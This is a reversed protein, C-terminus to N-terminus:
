CLRWKSAAVIPRPPADDDVPPAPAVLLTQKSPTSTTKMLGRGIAHNQSFVQALPPVQVVDARSSAESQVQASAASQARPRCCLHNCCCLHNQDLNFDLNFCYTDGGKRGITGSTSLCKIIEFCINELDFFCSFFQGSPSWRKGIVHSSQLPSTMPMPSSNSLTLSSPCNRRKPRHLVSKDWWLLPTDCSKERQCKIISCEESNLVMFCSQISPPTKPVVYSMSISRERPSSRRNQPSVRTMPLKAPRCRVKVESTPERQLPEQQVSRPRLIQKPTLVPISLATDFAKPDNCCCCRSCLVQSVNCPDPPPSPEPGLQPVVDDPAQKSEQSSLLVNPLVSFPSM